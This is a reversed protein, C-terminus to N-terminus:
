SPNSVSIGLLIALRGRPKGIMSDISKDKARTKMDNDTRRIVVLQGVPGWSAHRFDSRFLM